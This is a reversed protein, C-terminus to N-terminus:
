LDGVQSRLKNKDSEYTLAGYVTYWNEPDAVASHLYAAASVKGKGYSFEGMLTVVQSCTFWRHKAASRLTSQQADPFTASDIARQIRALDDASTVPHEEIVEYHAVPPEEIIQVHEVHEVHDSTHVIVVPEPEVVVVDLLTPVELSSRLRDMNELRVTLRTLKRAIQRRVAPHGSAELLDEIEKVENQAAALEAALEASLDDNAFATPACLLLGLIVWRMEGGSKGSVEGQIKM